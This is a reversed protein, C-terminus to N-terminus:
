GHVTIKESETLHIVIYEIDMNIFISEFHLVAAEFAAEVVCVCQNGTVEVTERQKPLRRSADQPVGLTRSQRM